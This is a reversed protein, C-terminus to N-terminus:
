SGNEGCGPRPRFTLSQKVRNAIWRKSIEDITANIKKVNFSSDRSPSMGVGLQFPNLGLNGATFGGHGTNSEAGFYIIKGNIPKVHALHDLTLGDQEISDGGDLFRLGNSSAVDRMFMYFESTQREDALCVEVQYVKSTSVCGSMLLALIPMVLNKSM